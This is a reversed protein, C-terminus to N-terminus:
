QTMCHYQAWAYGVKIPARLMERDTDIDKVHLTYKENGSTDEAYALLKHNPSPELGGVMYFDYRAAEANEDLLIEEPQSSDMTDSEADASRRTCIHVHALCLSSTHVLVAGVPLLWRSTSTLVVVRLQDTQLAFCCVKWTPPRLQQRM